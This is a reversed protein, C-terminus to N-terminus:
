IEIVEINHIAEVLKKKLRFMSYAAGKKYGKVDIVKVSNNAYTVKFDAKYFGINVNNVIIDFRPQLEIGIVRDELEIANKSMLLFRYYEAEKKSDFRIGDIITTKSRYKSM